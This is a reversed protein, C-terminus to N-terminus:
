QTSSNEDLVTNVVNEATIESEGTFAQLEEELLVGADSLAEKIKDRDNSKLKERFEEVFDPNENILKAVLEKQFAQFQRREEETELHKDVESQIEPVFALLDGNSEIASDYLTEGSYQDLTTIVGSCSMQFFAAFVVVTMLYIARYISSSPHTNKM